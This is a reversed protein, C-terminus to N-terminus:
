EKQEGQLALRGNFLIISAVVHGAGIAIATVFKPLSKQDFGQTHVNM